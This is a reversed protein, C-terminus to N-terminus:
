RAGGNARSEMSALWDLVARRRYRVRTGIRVGSPGMGASAWNALTRVSLGLEDALQQRTLWGDLLAPPAREGAQADDRDGTMERM